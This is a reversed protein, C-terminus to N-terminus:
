YKRSNIYKSTGVFHLVIFHMGIANCFIRLYLINGSERCEYFCTKINQPVFVRAKLHHDHYCGINTFIFEIHRGKEIRRGRRGYQKKNDRDNGQAADEM